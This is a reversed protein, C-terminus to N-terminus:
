LSSRPHTVKRHANVEASASYALASSQGVESQLQPEPHRALMVYSIRPLELTLVVHGPM